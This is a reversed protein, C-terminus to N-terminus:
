VPEYSLGQDILASLTWDWRKFRKGFREIESGKYRSGALSLIALM